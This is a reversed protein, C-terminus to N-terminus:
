PCKHYVLNCFAFYFLFWVEQEVNKSRILMIATFCEPWSLGFHMFGHSYSGHASFLLVSFEVSAM